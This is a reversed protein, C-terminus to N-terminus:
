SGASTLRRRRKILRGPASPAGAPGLVARLSGRESGGCARGQGAWRRRPEAEMGGAPRGTERAKRPQSSASHAGVAATACRKSSLVEDGESQAPRNYVCLPDGSLWIEGEWNLLGIRQVARGRLRHSTGQVHARKRVGKRRETKDRGGGCSEGEDKGVM